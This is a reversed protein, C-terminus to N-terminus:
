TKLIWCPLLEDGWIKFFWKGDLTIGGGSSYPSNKELGIVLVFFM